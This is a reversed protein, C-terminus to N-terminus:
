TNERKVFAYWNAETHFNKIKMKEKLEAVVIKRNIDYIQLIGNEVYIRRNDDFIQEYYKWDDPISKQFNHINFIKSQNTKADEMKFNVPYRLEDNILALTKKAENIDKIELNWIALLLESRKRSAAKSHPYRLEDNILALTKKAENLETNILQSSIFEEM